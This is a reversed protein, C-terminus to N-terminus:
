AYVNAFNLDTSFGGLYPSLLHKIKSSIVLVDNM